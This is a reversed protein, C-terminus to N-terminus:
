RCDESSSIKDEEGSNYVKKSLQVARKYDDKCWVCFLADGVKYLPERIERGCNPCEKITTMMCRYGKVM